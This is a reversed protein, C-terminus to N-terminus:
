CVSKSFCFDRLSKERGQLALVRSIQALVHEKPILDTLSETRQRVACQNLCVDILALAWDVDPAILAPNFKTSIDDLTQVLARSVFFDIRAIPVDGEFEPVIANKVKDLVDLFRTSQIERKAELMVDVTPKTTERGRCIKVWFGPSARFQEEHFEYFISLEEPRVCGIRPKNPQTFTYSTERKANQEKKLRAGTSRRFISAFNETPKAGLFITNTFITCLEELWLVKPMQPNVQRVANYIHLVGALINNTFCLHLGDNMACTLMHTMHGSAVWPAEYYLDFRREQLYTTYADRLTLLFKLTFTIESNSVLLVQELSKNVSDLIEQALQLTTVRCRRPNMHARNHPWM